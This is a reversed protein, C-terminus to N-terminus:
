FEVDFRDEYMSDLYSDEARYQDVMQEDEYSSMYDQEAMECALSEVDAFRVNHKIAIQQFSLEGRLIDDQIDIVMDRFASM